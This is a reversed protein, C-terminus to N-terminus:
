WSFRKNRRRHIGNHVVPRSPRSYNARKQRSAKDKADDRRGDDFQYNFDQENNYDSNAMNM